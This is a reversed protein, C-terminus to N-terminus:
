EKVCFLSIGKRLQAIREKAENQKETTWEVDSINELEKIQLLGFPKYFHNGSLIILISHKPLNHFLTSFQSDLKNWEEHEKQYGLDSWIFKVDGNCLKITKAFVQNSDHTPVINTRKGHFKKMMEPDGIFCSKFQPAGELIEMLRVQKRNTQDIGFQPGNEIKVFLLELATIADEKSDHSGNQINKQLLKSALHKLSHKRSEGAPYILSTDVVKTHVLQIDLFFTLFFLRPFFFSFSCVHSFFLSVKLARFDNELSHGVIITDESILQSIEKQVQPLSTTIDLLTDKSIGSWKTLYDIIANSPKVFSEYITSFDENVITVRTLELGVGTM